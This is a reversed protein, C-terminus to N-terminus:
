SNANRFIFDFAHSPVGLGGFIAVRRGLEGQSHEVSPRPLGSPHLRPRLTAACTRRVLSHQRHTRAQLKTRSQCLRQLPYPRLKAITDCPPRGHCRLPEICGRVPKYSLFRLRSPYRRPRGTTASPRRVPSQSPEICDRAPKDRHCLRLFPCRGPRNSSLAQQSMGRVLLRSPSDHCLRFGHECWSLKRFHLFANAFPFLRM